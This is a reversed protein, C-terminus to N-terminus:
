PTDGRQTPPNQRVKGPTLRIAKALIRQAKPTLQGGARGQKPPDTLMGAKRARLVKDRVTTHAYGYKEAMKRLPQKTPGGQEGGTALMQVYRAAWRADEQEGSADQRPADLQAAWMVMPDTRAAEHLRDLDLSSLADEMSRMPVRRGLEHRYDQRAGGPGRAGRLTAAGGASRLRLETKCPTGQRIEFWCQVHWGFQLDEVLCDGEANVWM